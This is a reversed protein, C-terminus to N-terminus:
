RISFTYSVYIKLGKEVLDTTKNEPTGQGTSNPAVGEPHGSFLFYLGGFSVSIQTGRTEFSAGAVPCAPPSIGVKYPLLFM